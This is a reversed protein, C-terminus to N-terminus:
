DGRVRETGAPAAEADAAVRAARARAETEQEVYQPEEEHGTSYSGDPITIGAIDLLEVDDDM